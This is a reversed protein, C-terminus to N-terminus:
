EGLSVTVLHKYKGAGAPTAIEAWTEIEGFRNLFIPTDASLWGLTDELLSDHTLSTEVGEPIPVYREEFLDTTAEVLKEMYQEESIGKQELIMSNTVREGTEFDYGYAGYETLDGEEDATILLFIQSGNWYSCWETNPSWLSYGDEMYKLQTEVREGFDQAIEDNIEKAAPTDANIQPVHYSYSVGNGVGDEYYGDVSYLESVSNKETQDAYVASVTTLLLLISLFVSIMRKM